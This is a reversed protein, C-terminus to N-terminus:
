LPAPASEQPVAEQSSSCTKQPNIVAAKRQLHRFLTQSCRKNVFAPERLWPKRSYLFSRRGLFQFYLKNRRKIKSIEQTQTDESQTNKEESKEVRKKFPSSHGPLPTDSFDEVFQMPKPPSAIQGLQQSKEGSTGIPNSDLKLRKCFPENEPLDLTDAQRKRATAVSQTQTNRHDFHIEELKKLRKRPPEQGSDVLLELDPPSLDEDFQTLSPMLVTQNLREKATTISSVPDAAADHGHKSKDKAAPKKVLGKISDHLMQWEEDTLNAKAYFCSQKLLFRMTKLLDKQPDRKKRGRDIFFKGQKQKNKAVEKMREAVYDERNHMYLLKIEKNASDLRFARNIAQKTVQPNWDDDFVIVDTIQTLNLGVGGAHTLSLLKNQEPHNNFRTVVKDRANQGLIGHYTSCIAGKSELWKWECVVEIIAAIPIKDVICLVQRKEQDLLPEIYKFFAKLKGSANIFEDINNHYNERIIRKIVEKKDEFSLNKKYLEKCQLLAPHGACESYQQLLRAGKPTEKKDTQSTEAPHNSMLRRCALAIKEPDMNEAIYTQQLPSFKWPIEAKVKLPISKSQKVESDNSKLRIMHTAIKSRLQILEQAYGELLQLLQPQTSAQSNQPFCNNCMLKAIEAIMNKFPETFNELTGLSGPNNINLKEWLEGLENQFPTGTLAILYDAETTIQSLLECDKESRHQHAEDIIIVKFKIAQSREHMLIQLLAFSVIPKGDKFYPNLDTSQTTQPLLSLFTSESFAGDLDKLVKGTPSLYGKKELTTIIFKVVIFRLVDDANANLKAFQDKIDADSLLNNYIRFFLNPGPLIELTKRKYAPKIRVPTNDDPPTNNIITCISTWISDFYKIKEQSLELILKSLAIFRMRAKFPNDIPGSLFRTLKEYNVICLGDNESALVDLNKKHLIYVSKTGPKNYASTKEDEEQWKNNVAKPCIVLTSRGHREPMVSTAALSISTKGLGGELAVLIGYYSTNTQKTVVESIETVTREQYSYLPLTFGAALLREKLNFGAFSPNRPIEQIVSFDYHTHDPKVVATKPRVPSSARFIDRFTDLETPIRSPTITTKELANEVQKSPLSETGLSSTIRKKKHQKFENQQKGVLALFPIPQLNESRLSTIIEAGERDLIFQTQYTTAQKLYHVLSHEERNQRPLQSCFDVILKEEGSLGVAAQMYRNGKFKIVAFCCHYKVEGSSDEICNDLFIAIAKQEKNQIQAPQSKGLNDIERELMRQMIVTPPQSINLKVCEECYQTIKNQNNASAEKAASLLLKWDPSNDHEAILQQIAEEDFILGTNSITTVLNEPTIQSILIAADDASSKQEDIIAQLLTKFYELTNDKNLPLSFCGYYTAMNTILENFKASNGVITTLLFKQLIIDTKLPPILFEERPKGAFQRLKRRKPLPEASSSDFAQAQEQNKQCGFCEDLLRSQQAVKEAITLESAVPKTTVLEVVAPEPAIIQPSAIAIAEPKSDDSMSATNTDDFCIEEHLTAEEAEEARRRMDSFPLSVQISSCTPPLPLMEYGFNYSESKLFEPYAIKESVAAGEELGPSYPLAPPPTPHAPPLLLATLYAQFAPTPPLPASSLSALLMQALFPSYAGPLFRFQEQALPLVPAPSLSIMASNTTMFGPHFSQCIPILSATPVSRLLTSCPYMMQGYCPNSTHSPTLLPPLYAGLPPFMVPKSELHKAPNPSWKKVVTTFEKIPKRRFGLRTVPLKKRSESNSACLAITKLLIAFNDAEIFAPRKCTTFMDITYFFDRDLHYYQASSRLGDYERDCVCLLTGDLSYHFTAGLIKEQFQSLDGSNKDKCYKFYQHIAPTAILNRSDTDYLRHLEIYESFPQQLMAYIQPANDVVPLQSIKNIIYSIAQTHSTIQKEKNFYATFIIEIKDDVPIQANCKFGTFYQICLVTTENKTLFTSQLEAYRLAFSVCM